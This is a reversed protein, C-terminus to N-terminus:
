TWFELKEPLVIDYGNEEFFKLFRLIIELGKIADSRKSESGSHMITNRKDNLWTLDTKWEKDDLPSKGLAIRTLPGFYTALRRSEIRRLLEDSEQKSLNPLSQKLFKQATDDLLAFGVIFAEAFYGHNVLDVSRTLIAWEAPVTESLKNGSIPITNPPVVASLFTSSGRTFIIDAELIIIYFILDIDGINRIPGTTWSDPKAYKLHFLFYNLRPLILDNLTISQHNQIWEKASDYNGEFAMITDIEIITFMNTELSLPPTINTIKLSPLYYLSFHTDWKDKPLSGKIKLTEIPCRFPLVVAAHLNYHAM